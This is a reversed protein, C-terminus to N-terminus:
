QMRILFGSEYFVAGMLPSYNVFEPKLCSALGKFYKVDVIPQTIQFFSCVFVCLVGFSWFKKEKKFIMEMGGRCLFGAWDKVKNHIVDM